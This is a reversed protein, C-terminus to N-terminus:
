WGVGWRYMNGINEKYMISNVCEPDRAAVASTYFTQFSGSTPYKGSATAMKERSWVAGPTYVFEFEFEFTVKNVTHELFM